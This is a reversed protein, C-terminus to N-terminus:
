GQGTEDQQQALKEKEEEVLVRRLIKGVQSKPLESRFEVMRPVKYPALNERCFAVIEEVTATVGEKLVIYAKVTEGRRPDPVGAVVAEQVKPHQYLVEEVERPVINYGSAIILDKKRDVIYFFGDEDMRAIDGTHLWGEPDITQATEDPRGWYGKMVQPGRVVLEGEQGPPVAEYVGEADPELKVVAVETSPLPLGISGEKRLGNIPNACVVPSTETLGYGEVLKGGTIQEFQRQIEVPLAMGGSLCAKVSRLDYEQVRPHNVIATYMTPIGPYLTVKERHIVELVHETQRPDPIVILESGTALAFLMAVTMGYVHFFPIAGLTKEGGYELDPMWAELQRVNCVLNKHTLMAAKPVGTTGGTYQFLVVDEPGVDVAPPQPPSARLLDYFRHLGPQPPVDIMTGSARVQKEVLRKFPFGLPDPIDTVIVHRVDVRERIPALRQTLPSLLVIAAAGSDQLQHELERSTYIPNTNVVTCGARLAGFFAIVQQPSNPLMIAVRDGPQLGLNRLATAFRQTAEGLERYTLRSQIAIGLPLYKLLFRVAIHNPYREAAADLLEHLLEGNYQIQPPVGPEYHQLWPRDQYGQKEGAM